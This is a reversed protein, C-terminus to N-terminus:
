GACHWAEWSELLLKPPKVEVTKNQFSPFEFLSLYTPLPVPPAMGRSASEFAWPVSCFPPQFLCAPVAMLGLLLHEEPTLSAQGLLLLFKYWRHCAHFQPRGVDPGSSSSSFSPAERRHKSIGLSGLHCCSERGPASLSVPETGPLPFSWCAPALGPDFPKPLM